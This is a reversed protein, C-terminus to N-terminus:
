SYVINLCFTIMKKGFYICYVVQVSTYLLINRGMINGFDQLTKVFYIYYVVSRFTCKYIAILKIIEYFGDLSSNEWFYLFNLTMERGNINSM